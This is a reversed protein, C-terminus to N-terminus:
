PFMSLMPLMVAQAHTRGEAFWVHAFITFSIRHPAMSYIRHPKAHVSDYQSHLKFRQACDALGQFFATLSTLSTFVFLVFFNFFVNTWIHCLIAGFSKCFPALITEFHGWTSGLITGLHGLFAVLFLLFVFVYFTPGLLHASCVATPLDPSCPSCPYCPPKRM